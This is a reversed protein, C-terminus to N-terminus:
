RNRWRSIICGRKKGIEQMIEYININVPNDQNLTFNIYEDTLNYRKIINERYNYLLFKLLEYAIETIPLISDKITGIFSLKLGVDNDDIKPWLIGATDLLDIKDNIRIWQKQRTVGPRNAVAM